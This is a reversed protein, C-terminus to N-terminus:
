PDGPQLQAEGSPRLQSELPKPNQGPTQELTSVLDAGWVPQQSELRGWGGAGEGSVSSAPGEGPVFCGWGM